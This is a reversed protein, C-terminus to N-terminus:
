THYYVNTENFKKTFENFYGIIDSREKWMPQVPVVVSDNEIYQGFAYALSTKGTGSMGQLIMLKSVGLGAVFRRIDEIDYYLGLKSAAYNRFGECFETLDRDNKYVPAKYKQYEEDISNMLGFRAADRMIEKKNLDYRILTSSTSYTALILFIFAVGLAVCLGLIAFVVESDVLSSSLYEEIPSMESSDSLVGFALFCLLTGTLLILASLVVLRIILKTTTAMM